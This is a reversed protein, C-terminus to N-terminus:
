VATKREFNEIVNIALHWIEVLNSVDFGLCVTYYVSSEWSRKQVLRPLEPCLNCSMRLGGAQWTRDIPIREEHPCIDFIM